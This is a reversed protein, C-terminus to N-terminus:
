EDNLLKSTDVIGEFGKSYYQKQGKKDAPVIEFSLSKIEKGYVCCYKSLGWFTSPNFGVCFDNIKHGTTTYVNPKTWLRKFTRETLYGIGNSDITLINKDVNSLVLNVDGTYGDPVISKLTPSYLQYYFFIFAISSLFFCFTLFSYKKLFLNLFLAIVLCGIIIGILVMGGSFLASLVLGGPVGALKIILGVLLLISIAGFIVKLNHDRM